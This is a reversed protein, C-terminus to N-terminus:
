VVVEKGDEFGHGENIKETHQPGAVEKGGGPLLYVKLLDKGPAVDTAAFFAEDEVDALRFGDLMVFSDLLHRQGRRGVAVPAGHPGKVGEHTDVAGLVATGVGRDESNRGLRAVRPDRQLLVLELLEEM